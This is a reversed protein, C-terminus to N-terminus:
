ALQRTRFSAHRPRPIAPPKGHHAPCAQRTKPIGGPHHRLASQPQSSHGDDALWAQLDPTDTFEVRGRKTALPATPSSDNHSLALRLESGEPLDLADKLVVVCSRPHYQHTRAGWGQGGKKLSENPDYEPFDDDGIVRQLPFDRRNEGVGPLTVHLTIRRFSPETTAPTNRKKSSRAPLTHIRLATLKNLGAPKPPIDLTFVVHRPITGETDTNSSDTSRRPPPASRARVSGEHHRNKDLSSQRHTRTRQGSAQSQLAVAKKKLKLATPSRLETPDEPVRITPYHSALDLDRTSNFFSLFKYYEDHRIPDYPHDHCQVCSSPLAKCAKGLPLQRPDMVAM